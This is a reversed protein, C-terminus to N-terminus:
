SGQRSRSRTRRELIDEYQEKAFEMRRIYAQIFDLEITQKQLRGRSAEAMTSRPYKELFSREYAIGKLLEAEKKKLSLIQKAATVSFDEDTAPSRRRVGCSITSHFRRRTRLELQM